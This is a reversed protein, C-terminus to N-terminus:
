KEKEGGLRICELFTKREMKEGFNEIWGIESEFLVCGLPWWKNKKRGM